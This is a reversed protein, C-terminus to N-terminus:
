SQQDSSQSTEENDKANDDNDDDIDKEKDNQDNEEDESNDNDNFNDDKQDKQSEDRVEITFVRATKDDCGTLICCQGDGVGVVLALIDKHHANIMRIREASSANWIHISGDTCGTVLIPLIPADKNTLSLGGSFTSLIITNSDPILTQKSNLRWFFFQMCTIGAEHILPQGRQTNSKLDLIVANGDLSASAVYHPLSQYLQQATQQRNEYKQKINTAQTKDIEKDVQQNGRIKDDEEDLLMELSCFAVKEVAEKHVSNFLHLLEVNSERFLVVDGKENGYVGVDPHLYSTTISTVGSGSSERLDKYKTLAYHLIHYISAIADNVILTDSHDLLRILGPYPNVSFILQKIENSSPSTIDFFASSSIRSVSNIERTIFIFLLSEVIGSQIIKRRFENDISNKIMQSLDRLEIEQKQLISQKQEETGEIPQKLIQEIMKLENENMIEACNVINQALYNLSIKATNRTWTDTDNLLGKTYTIIEKRIM